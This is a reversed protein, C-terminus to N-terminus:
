PWVPCHLRDAKLGGKLISIERFLGRSKLLRFHLVPVFLAATTSASTATASSSGMVLTLSGRALRATSLLLGTIRVQSSHLAPKLCRNLLSQMKQPLMM